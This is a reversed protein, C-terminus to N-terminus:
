WLIGLDSARLLVHTSGLAHRIHVSTRIHFRVCTCIVHEVNSSACLPGLALSLGSFVEAVVM